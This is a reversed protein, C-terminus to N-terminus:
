LYISVNIKVLGEFRFPEELYTNVVLDYKNPEFNDPLGYDVYEQSDVFSKILFLLVIFRMINFVVFM